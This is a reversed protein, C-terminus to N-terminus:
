QKMYALLDLRRQRDRDQERAVQRGGQAPIGGKRLPKRTSCPAKSTKSRKGLGSRNFRHRPQIPQPRGQGQAGLGCGYEWGASQLMQYGRNTEDLHHVQPPRLVHPKSVHHVLGRLHEAWREAQVSVKCTECYRRSSSSPGDPDQVKIGSPPSSSFSSSSVDQTQLGSSLTSRSPVFPVPRCLPFITGAIAHVERGSLTSPPSLSERGDGSDVSDQSNM